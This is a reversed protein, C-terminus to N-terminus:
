ENVRVCGDREVMAARNCCPMGVNASRAFGLGQEEWDYVVAYVERCVPMLSDFSIVIIPFVVRRISWQTCITRRGCLEHIFDVM